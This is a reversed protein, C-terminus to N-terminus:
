WQVYVRISCNSNTDRVVNTGQFKKRENKEELRTIITIAGNNMSGVFFISRSYYQEINVSIERNFSSRPMFKIQLSM